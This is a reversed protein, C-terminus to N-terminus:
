RCVTTNPADVEYVSIWAWRCVKYFLSVMNGGCLKQTNFLSGRSIFYFRVKSLITTKGCGTKGIILLRFTTLTKPTDSKSLFDDMLAKTKKSTSPTGDAPFALPKLKPETRLFRKFFTTRSSAARMPASSAVRVASQFVDRVGEGTYPSCELFYAAGTEKAMAM